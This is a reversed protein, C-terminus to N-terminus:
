RRRAARKAPRRTASKRTSRKTTTRKRVAGKKAARKKTAGKKAAGKKAVPAAGGSKKTRRLWAEAAKLADRPGGHTFDGFFKKFKPRWGRATRRYGM